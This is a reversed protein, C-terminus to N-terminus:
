NKRNKGQAAVKRSFDSRSLAVAVREAFQQSLLPPVANGVVKFGDVLGVAGFRYDDPFSQVRAAERVSLTRPLFPHVYAYTDKAMHSVITKSPVSPDMRSMWDGHAGERKRLYNESLLHHQLEGPQPAICELLLRITLSGDMM